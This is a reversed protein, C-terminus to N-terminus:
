RENKRQKELEKKKENKTIWNSLYDSLSILNHKSNYKKRQENTMMGRWKSFEIYWELRKLDRKYPNVRFLYIIHNFYSIRMKGDDVM